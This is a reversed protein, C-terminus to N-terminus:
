HTQAKGFKRRLLAPLILLLLWADMAGSGSSHSPRNSNFMPQQTDARQSAVPQTSRNQQAAQETQLRKKNVRKIGLSEFVEDRVVVMSTYDTVLSYETAIDTIAQKIDADEGFDQMEENLGEITAYAWLRELEPHGKDLAPFNVQTRYEKKEGSIKGRLRVQADGEGFYHGFVILQQGRYLSGPEKPTIDTVRAGDISLEVGHLAQHSVKSSAELIKGVIDDSNSISSTFGNSKRTIVDLLPRNASNGMIFTFLRIDKKELLQIFKRQKTEGVNAVGDTVLIIASTRDADISHLGKKLGSYLDTSGGPVVAAVKNSYHTIMEPTANAYGNTLEQASNNFTIIRFRDEARMKGLAQQVGHALSTYKGHMSGSIDLVFIWDSGEIVPKLDGGPTITLMFTGKKHGEAKYTTLDVSGPLGAKHRWYVILDKDLTFAPQNPNNSAGSEADDDQHSSGLEVQWEGPGSQSILAQAQNPMRLADIPYGSRLILKFSFQEKVSENATWFALKEEDIGGEELPYVYRGMGTDVHAAQMYQFRIRTEQGARIPSVSIDFTKYDNKETLGADRGAQKETEYIQRAQKKELVEGSVPKGDIWVTFESVTGKEPVPFSYVAELDQAHPNYFSQEVTTIAYGSEIVVEVHHKAIELSGFQSHKPTLLGAALSTSSFLLM